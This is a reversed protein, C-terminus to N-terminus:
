STNGTINIVLIHQIAEDDRLLKLAMYGDVGAKNINMSILDANAPKAASLVYHGNDISVLYYGCVEM